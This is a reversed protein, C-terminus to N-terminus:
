HSLYPACTETLHRMAQRAVQGASALYPYLEVTVKGQYGVDDLAQFIAPFNMAGQGPCLHQHVRNAAIDELHVHAIESHLNRIVQAPDEGVCFLHGLDANMRIQPEHPFYRNKFALYEGATQILLGPEPEIALIVGASRARDVCKCLSDAFRDELDRRSGALGIMPGGPQLSITSCGVDAALDIAGITHEIRRQREAPDPEIWTPHYTDGCAFLTFANINSVTLGLDGLQHRLDRRAEPGFRSPLAHHMDAMLEVMAYGSAAIDAVADTLSYKKYANSSFGLRM